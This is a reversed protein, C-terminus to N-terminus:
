LRASGPVPSLRTHLSVPQVQTSMVLVLSRSRQRGRQRNQLLDEAIGREAPMLGLHDLM